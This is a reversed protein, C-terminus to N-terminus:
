NHPFNMRRVLDRFRPDSRLSDFRPDRQLFVMWDNRERYALELEGFARDKEGLAAYIMAVFVPQVTAWERTQIMKSLIRKAQPIGECRAIAIVLDPHLESKDLNAAKTMEAVAEQCEGQQALARGLMRRAMYFSQDQAIIRRSQNAATEYEHAFYHFYSEMSQAVLSHPDYEQARRVETIAERHKGMAELFEAYWQRGSAYGPNLRLAQQFGQEAGSWDWDYYFRVFALATHAEALSPDLQLSKQAAERGKPSSEKPQAVAWFSFLNYADALGAYALAYNPEKQIAERFYAAAQQLDNGTRKSLHFRGRLYADHAEPSTTPARALAVQQEPLLQVSLSDAVRRSVDSQVAFVDALSREYNEAWLHTQDRVQILQATIRVRGADRRVSGEILYGVNLERGIQEVSKDTRKYRMVSTRAIVGLQQPQLRGLQSILEETLGDSFYAQDPDPSLNEFPLVALMVKGTGRSAGRFMRERLGGLNLLFSVALILMVVAAAAGMWRIKRSVGRAAPDPTSSATQTTNSTGLRRLDVAVEKASQYRNEPDKELCKLIIRDLDPSIRPNVVRAPVPPRHLIADTLQPTNEEAFVRKGTAMEYLVAGLAHLDTRADFTENRLQEPAMYPLTGAVGKAETISRTADTDGGPRLLKALGFDLVKIHGKPTVMVNGPKLDRHIVGHDHAEELAAAIQGGLAATEKESLPGQTLKGALSEGAIFEMALFDVGEQHDFDFVTAINTHNLRSLTLAEKRFRKRAEEDALADTPLVKLAVERELREDRGRYVVGMGGAGIQELIRYHGLTQGIM